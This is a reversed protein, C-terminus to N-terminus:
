RAALQCYDWINWLDICPWLAENLVQMSNTPASGTPKTFIVPATRTAGGWPNCTTPNVEFLMRLGGYTVTSSISTPAALSTYINCFDLINDMVLVSEPVRQGATYCSTLTAVPLSPSVAPTTAHGTGAQPGTSTTADKINAKTSRSPLGTPIAGVAGEGLTPARCTTITHEPKSQKVLYSGDYQFGPPIREFAVTYTSFASIRNLDTVNPTNLSKFRDAADTGLM